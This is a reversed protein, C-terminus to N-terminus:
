ITLAKYNKFAAEINNGKECQKYGFELALERAVEMQRSYVIKLDVEVYAIIRNLTRVNVNREEEVFYFGEKNPKIGLEKGTAEHVQIKSM